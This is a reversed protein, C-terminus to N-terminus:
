SAPGEPGAESMKLYSVRMSQPMSRFSTMPIGKEKLFAVLKEASALPRTISLPIDNPKAYQVPANLTCPRAFNVGGSESALRSEEAKQSRLARFEASAREREAKGEIPSAFFRGWEERRSRGTKALEQVARFVTLAPNRAETKLEDVEDQHVSLVANKWAKVIDVAARGEGLAQRAFNRAHAFRWEVKANDYHCARLPGLALYAAFREIRTVSVFVPGIKLAPKSPGRAPAGGVHSRSEQRGSGGVAALGNSNEGTLGGSPAITINKRGNPLVGESFHPPSIRFRFNNGPGSGFWRRVTLGHLATLKEFAGASLVLDAGTEECFDYISRKDLIIAGEKAVRGRIWAALRRSAQMRSYDGVAEGKKRVLWKFSRGVRIMEFEYAPTLRRFIPFVKRIHKATRGNKSQTARHFQDSSWEHDPKGRAFAGDLYGRIRRRLLWYPGKPEPAAAFDSFDDDRDDTLFDCNDRDFAKVSHPIQREIGM